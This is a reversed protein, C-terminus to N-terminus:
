YLYLICSVLYLLKNLCQYSGQTPKRCFLVLCLAWLFVYFICTCTIRYMLVPSSSISVLQHNSPYFCDVQCTVPYFSSTLLPGHTGAAVHDQEQRLKFFGEASPQMFPSRQTGTVALKTALHVQIYMYVVFTNGCGPFKTCYTCIPHSKHFFYICLFVHDMIRSPAPCCFQSQM